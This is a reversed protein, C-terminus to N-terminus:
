GTCVDLLTADELPGQLHRQCPDEVDGQYCICNQATWPRNLDTLTNDGALAPLGDAPWGIDHINLIHIHTYGPTLIHKIIHDM